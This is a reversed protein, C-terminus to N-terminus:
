AADPISIHGVAPVSMAYQPVPCQMGQRWLHLTKVQHQSVCYLHRTGSLPEFHHKCDAHRTGSFQPKIAYM